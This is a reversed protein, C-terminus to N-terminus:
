VRERVSARGIERLWRPWASRDSTRVSVPATAAHAPLAVGDDARPAFQGRQEAVVDVAEGVRLANVGVLVAVLYIRARKVLKEWDPHQEVQNMARIVMTLLGAGVGFIIRGKKKVPTTVMDTIM